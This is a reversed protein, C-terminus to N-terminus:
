AAHEAPTAGLVAQYHGILEDCIGAWGRGHVSLRAHGGMRTRMGPDSALAAVAARMAAPDDPPYLLGNHGPRVLDLPGGSAPAVVPLGAALGEQVAQGFTEDAGTHVFVDLSAVLESLEQGTRFGTFIAEPLLRELRRRAPGDGVVVLRVGPLGALHTLMWPRKETALRGVYGVLVEGAPALRERLEASRHRPHFREDDVGRAWLALRPFGRKRLEDLTPRSPALTRDTREYIHRLWAWVLSDAGRLGYRRAFGVLDTQFVAVTPVGLRRAAAVGSTGLMLPSALHVVDPRFDRLTPTVHRSPLGVVFSRYFPLPVGATLRLRDDHGDPGPGPAVVLAEHGRRTLHELVRCVSNTVGNVHPLFSETVIAIRM